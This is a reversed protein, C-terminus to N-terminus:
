GQGRRGPNPIPADFCRDLRAVTLESVDPLVVDFHPQDFTAIVAFGATRLRGFTSLRVQGYRGLRPSRRCLEDVAM